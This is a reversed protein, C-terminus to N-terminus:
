RIKNATTRPAESPSHRFEASTLAPNIYTVDPLDLDKGQPDTWAAVWRKKCDICKLQFGWRDFQLHPHKCTKQQEAKAFIALPDVKKM